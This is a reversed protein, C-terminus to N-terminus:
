YLKWAPHKHKNGHHSLAGNIQRADRSHTQGHSQYKQQQFGRAQSNGLTNKQLQGAAAEIRHANAQHTVEM